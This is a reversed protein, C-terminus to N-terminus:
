QRKARIWQLDEIIETRVIQLHPSPRTDGTESRAALRTLQREYLQVAEIRSVPTIVSERELGTIVDDLREFQGVDIDSMAVAIDSIFDKAPPVLTLQGGPRRNNLAKNILFEVSWSFYDPLQRAVELAEIARDVRVLMHCLLVDYFALWYPNLETEAQNRLESIPKSNLRSPDNRLGAELRAVTEAQRLPDPTLPMQPMVRRQPTTTAYQHIVDRAGDAEQDLVHMSAAYHVYPGLEVGVAAAVMEGILSFEFANYPLLLFANNSRMVTTTVLHGDRVNYFAGFACPVDNSRRVADDPTWIVAAARRSDAEAMIRDVVGRLQNLGPRPQFLRMGYNSGPVSLMNDTYPRVKPEYFAIDELRDSGAVMWAFRAVAGVINLPRIPNTTIRDRADAMLIQYGLIESSGKRSKESQDPGLHHGSSLVAELTRVFAEDVHTTRVSDNGIVVSPSRM